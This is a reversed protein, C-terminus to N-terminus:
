PAFIDAATIALTYPDPNVVEDRACVAYRLEGPSEVLNGAKVTLDTKIRVANVSRAWKCEGVLVPIRSREPQALVVADIQDQGGERWWPGVAVVRDGLEGKGALRRLHWRFAEEYVAGMHDSLADVMAPLIDNGM